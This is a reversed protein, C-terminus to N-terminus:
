KNYNKLKNGYYRTINAKPKIKSEVTVMGGTLHNIKTTKPIFSSNITIGEFLRLSIDTNCDAQSLLEAITKEFTNYIDRVNDVNRGSNKAIIKIVMEKTYTNIIKDDEYLKSKM